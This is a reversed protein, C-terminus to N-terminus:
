RNRLMIKSLEVTNKEWKPRDAFVCVGVRGCNKRVSARDFNLPRGIMETARCGAPKIAAVSELPGENSRNRLGQL